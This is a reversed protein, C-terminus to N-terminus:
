TALHSKSEWHSALLSLVIKMPSLLPIAEEEALDLEVFDEHSETLANHLLKVHAKLLKKESNKLADECDADEGTAFDSRLTRIRIPQLLKGEGASNERKV